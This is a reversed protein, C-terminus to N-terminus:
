IRPPLGGATGGSISEEVASPYRPPQGAQALVDNIEKKLDLLEAKAGSLRRTGAGCNTSNILCGLKRKRASPSTGCWAASACEQGTRGDSSSRGSVAIWHVSADPWVVRLEDYFGLPEQRSRTIAQDLRVWDDPHVRQVFSDFTGDFAEIALGFLEAHRANWIIRGTDPDWDFTGLQAADIIDALRRESAGLAAQAQQRRVAAHWFTRSM